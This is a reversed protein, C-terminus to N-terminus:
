LMYLSASHPMKRARLWPALQGRPKSAPWCISKTMFRTLRSRLQNVPKLDPPRSWFGTLNHIPGYCIYVHSGLTVFIELTVNSKKKCCLLVQYWLCLLVCFSSYIEHRWSQAVKVIKYMCLVYRCCTTIAERSDKNYHKATFLQYSCYYCCRHCSSYISVSLYCLYSGGIYISYNHSSALKYLSSVCM